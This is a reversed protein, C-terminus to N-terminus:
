AHKLKANVRKILENRKKMSGAAAKELTQKKELHKLLREQSKINARQQRQKILAQIM